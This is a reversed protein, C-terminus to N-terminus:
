TDTKAAPKKAPPKGGGNQSPNGGGDNGFANGRAEAQAVAAETEREQQAIRVPDVEEIERELYAAATDPSEVAEKLVRAGEFNELEVMHTEEAADRVTMGADEMLWRIATNRSILKERFLTTIDNIIVARDSPLFQGFALEILPIGEESLRSAPPVLNSHEQDLMTFRHVFKLLLPYKEHRSLRMRRVLSRLPGFSLALAIGSPVESPRLKGLVSEPMRINTSLRKLLVDIYKLLADLNKSTDIVTVEGQIVQGPGYTDVTGADNTEVPSKSGLPPSGTTRSTKLLDTDTSQIDDIIQLVKQVASRGFHEARSITNPLHVIPIFDVGLDLNRVQEGDANVEWTARSEDLDQYQRSGLDEFTWTGDSKLCTVEAPETNWPFQRLLTGGEGSTFSGDGLARNYGEDFDVGELNAIKAASAMVAVRNDVLEYTIRRIYRQPTYTPDNPLPKEYEWCLHVKTPYSYDYTSPDIVPFYFGPDYCRVVARKKKGDWAIEFVGDGLGIANEEVEMVTMLFLEDEVWKEFFDQLTDAYEDIEEETKRRAGRVSVMAEEGLVADVLNDRILTPDGYERRATPDQDNPLYKQATNEFYAALLTYAEIRRKDPQSIWSPATGIRRDRFMPKYDYASYQDVLLEHPQRGSGFVSTAM